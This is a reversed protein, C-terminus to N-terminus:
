VTANKRVKKPKELIDVGTKGRRKSKGFYLELVANISPHESSAIKDLWAIQAGEFPSRLLATKKGWKLVQRTSFIDAPFEYGQLNKARVDAAFRCMNFAWRHKLGPVKDKLVKLEEKMPLTPWQIITWRDIFAGNMSNTGAYAGARDSMAGISNATAFIRFNPSKKVVEGDNEKLVLKGLDELIPHLLMLVSPDGADIEDLILWVDNKMANPLVGDTWYTKGDKVHMKGILDSIRTEISFNVRVVPQNIRNAIQEITTTKGGGGGGTLLVPENANIADIVDRTKPQFRFFQDKEPVLADHKSKPHSLLVRGKYNLFDVPKSKANFLRPYMNGWAVGDPHITTVKDKKDGEKHKIQRYKRSTKVLEVEVFQRNKTLFYSKM